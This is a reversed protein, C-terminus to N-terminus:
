TLELRKALDSTLLNDPDLQKKLMRFTELSSGLYAAADSPRLTSDKAFYFRGGAALVLENMRHAMDWLRKRNRATVKFDLALSYGDVAHSFMFRDPRHRKLVGLYSELGYEQQLLVQKDFVEKASEKPVFSQYQIFGGPAYAKRWDPVYDLLFSYGVLSEEHFKEHGLIRSATFKAWNIFWMGARNCFFKLARWVISKPFFGLILAPLDQADARLSQPNPYDSYWAAHFQGRGRNNMRGFCDVWSVMYDADKEFREFMAFQDDWNQAAGAWVKLSGSVVKHMKLKVRSIVGLLGASSIVSYFLDDSPTLIRVEGTSLVVELETVHEGLTGKCFNNKGHVNMALAGALSPYMTGTVVPPWYGDEMCYRWLDEITAGAECEVIGSEKDWSLIRNMRTIDLVIDESGFAADGYSRGSGRLAVQKHNAKALAFVEKIEGVNTPRFVYADGYDAQGFGSLRSLQSTSLNM